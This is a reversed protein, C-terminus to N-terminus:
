RNSGTMNPMNRSYDIQFLGPDPQHNTDVNRLAVATQYGQPDVVTWQRLAYSRPDFFLEIRSTGGFTSRDEIQVSVLDPSPNVEVLRTDRALDVKDRLLFKLPTQGIGYMDQTGLKRDRIVVSTGDAVIELQAPAKYEFRLRGPKQLFLKGEVRRGNSGTQVFEAQMSSLANLSANVRRLVADPSTEVAAVPQVTAAPAPAAPVPAPRAVQKEEPAAASPAAGEALGAPRPPPLPIPRAQVVPAPKPAAAAPPATVPAPAAPTGVSGPPRPPQLQLPQAGAASAVLLAAGGLLTGATFRTARRRIDM